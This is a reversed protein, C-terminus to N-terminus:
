GFNFIKPPNFILIRTLTVIYNLTKNLWSSIWQNIDFDVAISAELKSQDGSVNWRVDRRCDHVSLQGCLYWNIFALMWAALSPIRLWCICCREGCGDGLSSNWGGVIRMDISWRCSQWCRLWGKLLRSFSIFKIFKM